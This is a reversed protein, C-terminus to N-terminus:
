WGVWGWPHSLTHSSLDLNSVTEHQTGIPPHLNDVNASCRHQHLIGIVLTQAPRQSPGSTPPESEKPAHHGEKSLPPLMPIIQGLILEHVVEATSLLFVLSDERAPHCRQKPPQHEATHCRRRPPKPGEVCGFGSPVLVPWRSRLRECRGSRGESSLFTM